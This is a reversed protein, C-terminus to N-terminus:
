VGPARRTTPIEVPQSKHYKLADIKQELLAIADKDKDIEALKEYYALRWRGPSSLPNKNIYPNDEFKAKGQALIKEFAAIEEKTPTRGKSVLWKHRLKALEVEKAALGDQLAKLEDALAQYEQSKVAGSDALSGSSSAAQAPTVGALSTIFCAALVFTIVSLRKKM